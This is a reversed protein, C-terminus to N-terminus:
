EGRTAPTDPPKTGDVIVKFTAETRAAFDWIFFVKGKRQAEQAAFAPHVQLALILALNANRVPEINSTAM